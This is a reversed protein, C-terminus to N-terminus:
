SGIHCGGVCGVEGTSGTARASASHCPRSPLSTSVASTAPKSVCVRSRSAAGPAPPRCRGPTAAASWGGPTTPTIPAAAVAEQSSPRSVRCVQMAKPM